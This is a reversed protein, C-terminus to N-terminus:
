ATAAQHRPNAATLARSITVPGPGSWWSRAYADPNAKILASTRTSLTRPAYTAQADTRGADFRRLTHSSAAASHPSGTHERQVGGAVKDDRDRGYAPEDRRRGGPLRGATHCSTRQEVYQEEEDARSQEPRERNGELM